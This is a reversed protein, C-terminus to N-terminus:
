RWRYLSAAAPDLTFDQTIIGNRDKTGKLPNWRNTTMDLKEIVRDKNGVNVALKSTVGNRYDRNSVMVYLFGEGRFLGISLNGAGQIKVMGDQPQDRGDPPVAGTQFTELVKTHYLWKGLKQVESNVRKVPEYLPGPTGDRNMIAHNWTFSPDDPLWYTFYALGHVGYVLSQMAEFRLENENLPRYGGHEVSLVIQWFPTTEANTNIAQQVASLNGFFGQRDGDKLFHYHDWSLVDPQVVRLYNQLYEEYTNTQLQSPKAVYNTTAYNPFLNIYVLHEPDLKHLLAQVEHLGQFADAGPEDTLFYGMLAPHKHYDAVIAQVAKEAERNGNIALPMRADSLIVKLGVAKATDLIKRNREVTAAGECPPMVITFGAEAIRRYQEVTIFPEPPGCWFTIPFIKPPWANEAGCPLVGGLMMVTLCCWVVITRENRM